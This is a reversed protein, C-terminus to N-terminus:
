GILFGNNKAGKVGNCIPAPITEGLREGLKKTESISGAELTIREPHRSV